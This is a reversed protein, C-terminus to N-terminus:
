VGRNTWGDWDLIPGRLRKRYAFKAPSNMKCQLLGRVVIISHLVVGDDGGAHLHEIEEFIKGCSLSVHAHIGDRLGRRFRHTDQQTHEIRDRGVYAERQPLVQTVGGPMAIEEGRGPRDDVFRSQLLVFDLQYELDVALQASVHARRFGGPALLELLEGESVVRHRAERVALRHLLDDHDGSPEDIHDNSREERATKAQTSAASRAAQPKWRRPWASSGNSDNCMGPFLGSTTSSFRLTAAALLVRRTSLGPSACATSPKVSSSRSLIM